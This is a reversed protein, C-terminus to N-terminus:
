KPVVVPLMCQSMPGPKRMPDARHMEGALGVSSGAKLSFAEARRPAPRFHACPYRVAWGREPRQEDRQLETGADDRQGHASQEIPGFRDECDLPGPHGNACLRPESKSSSVVSEGVAGM